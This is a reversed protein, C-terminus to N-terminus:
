NQYSNQFRGTRFHSPESVDNGKSYFYFLLRRRKRVRCNRLKFTESNTIEYSSKMNQTLESIEM